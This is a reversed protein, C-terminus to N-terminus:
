DVCQTSFAFLPDFHYLILTDNQGPRAYLADVNCVICEDQMGPQAYLAGVKQLCNRRALSATATGVSADHETAVLMPM